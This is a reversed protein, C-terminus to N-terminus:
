VLVYVRERCSARGIQWFNTLQLATCIHDSLGHLGPDRYGFLLLVLRGVPNASYRCYDNQLSAWTAYRTVTVDRTFATLLDRFLQIPLDYTRITESLALFVPHDPRGEVCQELAQGWRRLRALAREPDREEDSFDDATRAFAYIAAVHPRLRRPMLRSAVPFNEYHHATLWQCYRYAESSAPPM